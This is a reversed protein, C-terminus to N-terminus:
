IKRVQKIKMEQELTKIQILSAMQAETYEVLRRNGEVDDHNSEEFKFDEDAGSNQQEKFNKTIQQISRTIVEIDKFITTGPTAFEAPCTTFVLEVLKEFKEILEAYFSEEIIRTHQMNNFTTLISSIQKRLDTNEADKEVKQKKCTEGCEHVVVRSAGARISTELSEPMELAEDNLDILIEQCNKLADPGGLEIVKSEAALARRSMAQILLKLRVLEQERVDLNKVPKNKIKKARDAYRLTSLTEEINYDAPSVCAIMLTVTNGGLSDQLLRTLKSDRYSIFGNVSAGQGGGLASIVNGLALLGQNIKVGEKFRKGTALTKKSRESGALDVLHFKSNTKAGNSGVIKFNVTFIAHSRSSVNNMATAGVSRNEGGEMLYRAAENEDISTKFIKTM